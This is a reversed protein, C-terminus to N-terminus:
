LNAASPKVREKSFSVETTCLNGGEHPRSFLKIRRRCKLKEDKEICELTYTFTDTEGQFKFRKTKSSSKLRYDAFVKISATKTASISKAAFIHMTTSDLSEVGNYISIRQCSIARDQIKEISAYWSILGSGSMQKYVDRYLEPQCM